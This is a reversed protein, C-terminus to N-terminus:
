PIILDDNTGSIGDDGNTWVKIGSINEESVKGIAIHVNEFIHKKRGCDGIKGRSILNQIEDTTLERSNDSSKIQGADLAELTASHISRLCSEEASKESEKLQKYGIFFGFSLFLFVIFLATKAENTM